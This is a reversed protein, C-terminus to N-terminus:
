TLVQTWGPKKTPNMNSTQKTTRPKKHPKKQKKKKQRIHCINGADRPQGKMIAGEM